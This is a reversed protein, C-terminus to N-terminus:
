NVSLFGHQFTSILHPVHGYNQFGEVFTGNKSRISLTSGSHEATVSALKWDSPTRSSYVMLNLLTWSTWLEFAKLSKNMHTTDSCRNYNNKILTDNVKATNTTCKFSVFLEVFTISLWVFSDHIHLLTIGIRAHFYEEKTYRSFFTTLWPHYFAGFKCEKCSTTWFEQANCYITMRKLQVIIMNLRWSNCIIFLVAEM